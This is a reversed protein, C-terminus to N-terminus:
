LKGVVAGGVVVEYSYIEAQRQLQAQDWDKNCFGTCCDRGSYLKRVM